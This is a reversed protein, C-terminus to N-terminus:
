VHAKSVAFRYTGSGVEVVTKSPQRSLVKLNRVRELPLDSETATAGTATPLHVAARTNPPVTLALTFAAGQLTWRTAIRGQVSDYEAGASGVRADLIPRVRIRSFGPAAPEIGAIRRYLFGCVAGLAYHNRSAGFGAEHTWSEWITTAGREIMYGWSPPTTKLLLDYVLVPEGCDTIVDLSFPTALFGTSLVTGRGRIDAVLKRGAAARLPSPVCGMALALIYSAQSGNGVSGDAQVFADAFARKVVRAHNRYQQAESLRGTWTGLDALQDCSRALLASAVLDKPTTEDWPLKADLAFWDGFDLGRGRRWLHDPNRELIGAVYRTMADWNEDVVARDGYRVYTTWPLVVGADAWGPTPDHTRMLVDDAKPAWIGFAGTDKAQGDRLDGLFRRTFAAVDMNFAAADWFVQADGTWGLREDRQPCDTPIGVFNSRQSWLTNQWLKQIVPADIQFRGTEALDSHVVIGQLQEASVPGPLGELQVYRFGHYTFKPEHTEGAPDGRAIYVDSARAMRLSTQDVHGDAKLVEAFRLTIPTGAPAQVELRAWGAFNQGFDFVHIGPSPETVQVVALRGVARIPPSVQSVLAGRAPSAEWAASWDRDDFGARDWGSQELLADYREGDYIESALVPARATRWRADTTITEQSGDEYTLELQALFRRPAPGYAYRGTVAVYSAYWGDGVLAGLVNEGAVMLDRVDHVRYIVRHRFDTSEPCLKDASV